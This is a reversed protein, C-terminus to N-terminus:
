RWLCASLGALAALVPLVVILCGRGRAYMRAGSRGLTLGLPGKWWGIRLGM